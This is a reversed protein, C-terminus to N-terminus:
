PPTVHGDATGRELTRAVFSAMQDRRVARAPSYTDPGTGHAFGAAAAKNISTEHTNGDIDTFGSPADDLDADDVHEYARVLFSAMQDRRVHRAPSYTDPSTGKVIGLEALQNIREAHPNGDVDTFGQDRPRPPQVGAAELLRVVFSAMQDRRVPLPPGYTDATQGHAIGYWAVCDIAHEHANGATDTFGAEPVGDEPCAQSPEQTTVDEEGTTEGNTSGDTASGDEHSPDLDVWHLVPDDDHASATVIFLRSGDGAFSLGRTALDADGLSLQRAPTPARWGYVFVDHEGYTTSRGAAVLSGDDPMAVATPYPGTDYSGEGSLDATAYAQVYYPSGSAALLTQGSPDIAVQGMNAGTDREAAVQAHADAVDYVRTTAPSRNLLSAVLLDERAPSSALFGGRSDTTDVVPQWDGDAAAPDLSGLGGELGCGYSVWLRAGVLAVWAPCTQAGLAFRDIEERSATDIVSVADGDQLAVYLRGADADLALGRAGYQEAILQQAQGHWDTVLLGTTGAGASVFLQENVDDVVMAEFHGVDLPVGGDQARSPPAPLAVAATTLVAVVAVTGRLRAGATTWAM